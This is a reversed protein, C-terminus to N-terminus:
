LAFLNRFTTVVCLSVFLNCCLNGSGVVTAFVTVLLIYVEWQGCWSTRRRVSDIGRIHRIQRRVRYAFFLLRLDSLGVQSSSRSHFVERLFFHKGDSTGLFFCLMLAVLSSTCAIGFNQMDGTLPCTRINTFGKAVQADDMDM